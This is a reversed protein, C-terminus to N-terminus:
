FSNTTKKITSINSKGWVLYILGVNMPLTQIRKNTPPPEDKYLKKPIQSKESIGSKVLFFVYDEFDNGM